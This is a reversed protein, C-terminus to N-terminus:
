RLRVPDADVAIRFLVYPKERMDIGGNFAAQRHVQNATFYLYHDVGLSLTDPWLIRPDHAITEYSGDSLRRRIANHEIDTVYVRGASDSELGDSMGKEGLDVVTSAVADDTANADRLAATSVSYLHRSTLPCYYLKEGDASIAIGDAATLVPASSTGNPVLRFPKGEVFPVITPDAATSHHGSLRRRSDGTALDVVIIAGPGSSSSDTIYAVGEKGHRLDFRVDNLYTTPLVVDSLFVITKVVTNTALDIGVLKAAGATPPRLEPSGTDLAWLRNAPDIVVSQVSLFSHTPDDSRNQNMAATPFPVLRGHRIEAVTFDVKDGWRPFNVFLRGTPAITVGTPMANVFQFVTELRGIPQDAAQRVHQAFADIPLVALCAIVASAVWSFRAGVASPQPLGKLRSSRLVESMSKRLSAVPQRPEHAKCAALLCDAANRRYRRVSEM